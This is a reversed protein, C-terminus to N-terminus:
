YQFGALMTVELVKDTAGSAEYTDNQSDYHFTWNYHLDSAEARLYIPGIKGAFGVAGRVATASATDFRSPLTGGSLVIRTEGAVYPEFTGFVLGLRVGARLSQYDADPLMDVYSQDGKFGLQDQVYGGSVELMFSDGFIWKERLSAEMSLWNTQAGVPNNMTDTVAQSNVPFEIRAYISLGRLVHAHLMEAPWLEIAPGVITQGDEREPSLPGLVPDQYTFRRFGIDAVADISIFRDRPAQAETHKVVVPKASGEGEGEEGGPPDPPAQRAVEKPPARVPVETEKGADVDVFDDFLNKGRLSVVVQHGGPEIDFHAPAKGREKQDITITAGTAIPDDVVLTGVVIELDWHRVPPKRDRTRKPPDLMDIVPGYKDLEIIIATPESPAEVECPTPACAIGSEKDNLYVTAGEPKTDIMVKPRTGARAVGCLAVCSAALLLERGM